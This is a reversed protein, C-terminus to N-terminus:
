SIWFYLQGLPENNEARSMDPVSIRAGSIVHRARATTKAAPSNPMVVCSKIPNRVYPGSRVNRPTKLPQSRGLLAVGFNLKM